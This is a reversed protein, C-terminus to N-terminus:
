CERLKWYFRENVMTWFFHRYVREGIGLKLLQRIDDNLQGRGIDAARIQVHVFATGIDFLALNETVLIEAGHYLTPLATSTTLFPSLTTSGKLMPHPNQALQSRPSVPYQKVQASGDTM